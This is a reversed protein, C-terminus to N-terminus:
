PGEKAARAAIEKKAKDAAKRVQKDKTAAALEEILAVDSADGLRRLAGLGAVQWQSWSKAKWGRLPKAKVAALHERLKDAVFSRVRADGSVALAALNASVEYDFLGWRASLLAAVLDYAGVAKEGSSVLWRVCESHTASPAKAAAHREVVKACAKAVRPALKDGPRVCLPWYGQPEAGGKGHRELEEVYGKIEDDDLCVGAHAPGALLALLLGTTALWRTM